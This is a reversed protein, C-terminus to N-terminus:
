RRGSTGLATRGASQVHWRATAGPRARRSTAPRRTSPGGSITSAARTSCSTAFDRAEGAMVTVIGEIAEAVFRPVAVGEEYFPGPWGGTKPLLVGSIGAESWRVACRGLETDFSVLSTTEPEMLRWFGAEIDDTATDDDHKQSRSLSPRRCREIGWRVADVIITPESM